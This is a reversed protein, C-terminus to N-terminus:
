IGLGKFRKESEKRLRVVYESGTEKIKWLGATKEVVDKTKIKEKRAKMIETEKLKENILRSLTRTTGYREVAERVLKKYVEDELNITTKAM